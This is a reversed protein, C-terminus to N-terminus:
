VELGELTKKINSNSNLINYALDSIKKDDDLTLELLTDIGELGFTAISEIANFRVWWQSDNIMTKLVDKVSNYPFKVLSKAIASRVEWDKEINYHNILEGLIKNDKLESLALVGAIRIEKSETLYKLLAQGINFDLLDPHKKVVRLLVVKSREDSVNDLMSLLDRLSLNFNQVMEIQRDRSIKSQLLQSVVNLKTHNDLKLLSISYFSTFIVELEKSKIGRILYKYARPSKTLGLVKLNDIDIKKMKKFFGIEEFKHGIDENTKQVYELMLDVAVKYKIKSNLVDNVGDIDNMENAIYANIVPSIMETARRYRFNILKDRAVGYYLAVILGFNLGLLVYINGIIFNVFLLHPM